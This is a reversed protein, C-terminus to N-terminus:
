VAIDKKAITGFCKELADDLRQNDSPTWVITDLGSPADASASGNAIRSVLDKIKSDHQAADQIPVIQTSSTYMVFGKKLISQNISEYLGAQNVNHKKTNINLYKVSGGSYPDGVAASKVARLADKNVSWCMYAPYAGTGAFRYYKDSIKQGHEFWIEGTGNDAWCISFDDITPPRPLVNKNPSRIWQKWDDILKSSGAFIFSYTEHIEIKDFDTDDVYAISIVAGNDDKQRFSWRSDSALTRANLDYVNTTM